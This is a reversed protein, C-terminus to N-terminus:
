AHALRDILDAYRTLQRELSARVLEPHSPWPAAIEIAEAAALNKSVRLQTALDQLRQDREDSLRLTMAM